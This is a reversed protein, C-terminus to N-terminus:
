IVQYTFTYSWTKSTVDSSVWQIKATDNAVVGIIEAGMGAISGCFAVGSVDEVAGINSAVPLTIEFSTNTATLTPDATFRGSVTVTNGVRMYQAETTTVNSDLNSEASRTPTYTGNAITSGGTTVIALTGTTNPFTAVRNATLGTLGLTVSWGLDSNTLKIVGQTVNGSGTALEIDGGTDGGGGEIFVYGGINDGGGGSITVDGGTSQDSGGGKITIDGGEVGVGGGDGGDILIDGGEDSGQVTLTQGTNGVIKKVSLSDATKNFTFTSDGAFAGADNFQVQTDAGGPSGSGGTASIVPNSPDTNDVTVNTGAVVSELVGSANVIPNDPDTNDITVNTGAVVSELLGTTSVVPNAPDSSDVSINSGGVITEVVGDGTGSGLQYKGNVVDLEGLEVDDLERLSVTKSSLRRIADLNPAGKLSSYPIQGQIKELIQEATDPSGDKGDVGDRPKPILRFVTQVIEDIDVPEADKGPRGDRGNEPMPIATLIDRVLNDVEQETLYDVGKVPTRGDKPQKIQSQVRSVIDSIESETFYDKGKVPTKGDEGREGKDGKITTTGEANLIIRTEPQKKVEELIQSQVVLSDELIQTNSNEDAQQILAELKDNTQEGVEKAVLLSDTLLQEINKDDM